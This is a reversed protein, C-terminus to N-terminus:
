KNVNYVLCKLHSFQYESNNRNIFKIEFKLTSDSTIPPNIKLHFQYNIKDLPYNLNIEELTSDSNTMWKIKLNPFAEPESLCHLSIDAYVPQNQISSISCINKSLANSKITDQEYENYYIHQQTFNFFLADPMLKFNLSANLSAARYISLKKRMEDLKNKDYIEKLDMDPYLKFLYNEDSLYYGNSYYDVLQRNDNMFVIDRNGNFATDFTIKSGLSTSFEPINFNYKLKFFSLLTEYLDQHTSLAKFEQPKKLKPSFVIFPVRYKEIDNAIPLESMQHDGTIFFLTNEYDARQQYKYFLKRYADDVNYLTLYFRKHKEFHKIDEINTIKELDQKFRKNYYEPDSVIFPSHSTGTFLVDLRKVRQLSDTYRLYQDFFDIDNYGWFHQEEGVNVKTFDPDFSNKDIIRDINNFKYYHEKNHFWSGQSYYFTNRYNNEKLVNMLSFHYPYIQMLTFGSEGYPVAATLCPNAAFSREGLSFFNPWFLSVKSLSDLFPMFHIGRIPHIFYESLSETLLIVVNPPTNELNLYASLSDVAKFKHLFPYEPDIYEPGPFEHQFKLSLEELPPAFFKSTSSKFVNKYFFYSKNNFLDVAVPLRAYLNILVFAILSIIGGYLIKNLPLINFPYQRFYYGLITWSGISVILASIIRYFTIGSTNISFAMESADHSFLFIDLPKLQYFFYEIILLHCVILFFVITEFLKPGVRRKFHNLWKYIPAFIAFIGLCLLLDMGLGFLESKFLKAPRFLVLATVYEYIRLVVVFILTLYILTIYDKRWKSSPKTTHASRIKFRHKM